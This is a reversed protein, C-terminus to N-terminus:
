YQVEWNYEKRLFELVFICENACVCVCMRSFQLQELTCQEKTEEKMTHDVDVVM